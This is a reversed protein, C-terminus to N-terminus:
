KTKAAKLISKRLSDALAAKQQDLTSEFAPRLWPKAPMRATGYEEHFQVVYFAEKRVGVAASAQEGTKSLRAVIRLSRKAFGPAVLRGKYTRHAVDGVPINIKAQNLAPKVAARVAARLAKGKVKAGLADLQRELEKVGVLHNGGAM